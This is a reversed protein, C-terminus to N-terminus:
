HSMGKDIQDIMKKALERRDGRQTRESLRQYVKRAESPKGDEMYLAGLQLLSEEAVDSRHPYLYLVKSFQLL